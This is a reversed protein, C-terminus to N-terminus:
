RPNEENAGNLFALIRDREEGMTAAYVFLGADSRNNCLVANIRCRVPDGNLYCHEPIVRGFSDNIV